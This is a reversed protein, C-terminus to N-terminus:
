CGCGVTFVTRKSDDRFPDLATLSCSPGAPAPPHGLQGWEEKVPAPVSGLEGLSGALM